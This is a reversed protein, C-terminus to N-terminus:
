LIRIFLLKTWTGSLLSILSWEPILSGGGSLRIIDTKLFLRIIETFRGMGLGGGMVLLVPKEETLGIKRKISVINKPKVFTPNIPIGTVHIRIPDIGNEALRGKVEPSGV